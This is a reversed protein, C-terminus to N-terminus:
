NETLVLVGMKEKPGKDGLVKIKEKVFVVVCFIIDSVRHFYTVYIFHLSLM